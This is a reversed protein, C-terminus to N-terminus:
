AAIFSSSDVVSFLPALLVGAMGALLSSLLWSFTSVREANIGNLEVMRHSEVVARMRLGIPTWRFLVTLVIVTLVTAVLTAVGDANMSLSGIHLGDGVRPETARQPDNGGFIAKVTEPIGVMLGITTVLKALTSSTRLLRFIFRDLVLGLAISVVVVAVLAAPVLPWNHDRVLM